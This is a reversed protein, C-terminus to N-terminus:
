RDQVTKKEEAKRKDYTVFTLKWLDFEHSECMGNIYNGLNGLEDPLLFLESENSGKLTVNLRTRSNVSACAADTCTVLWM